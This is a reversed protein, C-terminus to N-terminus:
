FINEFFPSNLTPLVEEARKLLVDAYEQFCQKQRETLERGNIPTEDQNVCSKLDSYTSQMDFHNLAIKVANKAKQSSSTGIMDPILKDEYLHMWFLLFVDQTTIEITRENIDYYAQKLPEACVLIKKVEDDKQSFSLKNREFCDIVERRIKDTNMQKQMYWVQTKIFSKEEDPFQKQLSMEVSKEIDNYVASFLADVVASSDASLDVAKATFSILYLFVFVLFLHKM